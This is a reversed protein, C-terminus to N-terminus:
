VEAEKSTKPTTITEKKPTSRRRKDLFVTGSESEENRRKAREAVKRAADKALKASKEESVGLRFRMTQGPNQSEYDIRESM